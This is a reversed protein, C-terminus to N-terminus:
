SPSGGFTAGVGRSDMDEALMGLVPPGSHFGPGGRGWVWGGAQM